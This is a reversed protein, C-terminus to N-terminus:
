HIKWFGLVGYKLFYSLYINEFIIEMCSNTLFFNRHKKFNDLKSIELNFMKHNLTDELVMQIARNLKVKMYEKSHGFTPNMKFILKIIYSGELEPWRRKKPERIWWCVAILVIGAIRIDLNNNLIRLKQGNWFSTSHINSIRYFCSRNIIM